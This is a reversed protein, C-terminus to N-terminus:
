AIIVRFTADTAPTSGHNIVASGNGPVVYPALDLVTANATMPILAVASSPGIRDDTLTTTTASATLTMTTAGTRRLIFNLARAIMLVWVAMNSQGDEPVQGITNAPTNASV